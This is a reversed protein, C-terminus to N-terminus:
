FSGFKFTLSATRGSMRSNSIGPQDAGAIYRYGAGAGIHFWKNVAMELNVSPQVVYFGSADIDKLEDSGNQSVTGRGNGNKIIGGGILTSATFYIRRTQFFSYELMLGGYGMKWTNQGNTEVNKGVGNHRTVLGYGGLGIMLKHNMMWGGYAGAFLASQNNFRSYQTSLAGYVSNKLHDVPAQGTSGSQQAFLQLNMFLLVAFISKKM